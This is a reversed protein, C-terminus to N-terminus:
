TYLSILPFFDIFSLWQTCLDNRFHSIYLLKKVFREFFYNKYINIYYTVYLLFDYVFSSYPSFTRWIFFREISHIKFYTVYLLFDFVFSLNPSFTRWILFIEWFLPYFIDCFVSFRFCYILLALFDQLYFLEWFFPDQFVLIHWMCCFIPFLLYTLPSLVESLFDRLLVSRSISFYTVYLLLYTLSSLVESLFDRLHVSWSIHWMWCFTPFLLYTLGSHGEFLFDSLLVSFIHLVAVSKIKKNKKQLKNIKGLVYEYMCSEIFVINWHVFTVIYFCTSIWLM